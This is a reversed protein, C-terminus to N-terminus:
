AVAAAAGGAINSFRPAWNSARFRCGSWLANVSPKAIAIPVLFWRPFVSVRASAGSGSSPAVNDFNSRSKVFSVTEPM